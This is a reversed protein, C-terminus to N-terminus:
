KLRIPLKTKYRLVISIISEGIVGGGVTNMIVTTGPEEMGLLLLVVGAVVKVVNLWVTKSKYFPKDKM